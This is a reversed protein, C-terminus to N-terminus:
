SKLQSSDTICLSRSDSHPFTFNNEKVKDIRVYKVIITPGGGYTEIFFRWM